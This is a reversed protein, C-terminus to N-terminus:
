RPWLATGVKGAMSAAWTTQPMPYVKVLPAYSAHTTSSIPGARAPSAKTRAPCTARAADM